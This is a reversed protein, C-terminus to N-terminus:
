EVNLGGFEEGEEEPNSAAEESYSSYYTEDIVEDENDADLPADEDVLEKILNGDEDYRSDSQYRLKEVPDKKKAFIAETWNGKPVELVEFGAAVKREYTGGPSHLRNTPLTTTSVEFASEIIDKVALQISDWGGGFNRDILELLLSASIYKVNEYSLDTIRKIDKKRIAVYGRKPDVHSFVAWEGNEYRAKERPDNANYHVVEFCLRMTNLIKDESNRFDEEQKDTEWLKAIEVADVTWVNSANLDLVSEIRPEKKM